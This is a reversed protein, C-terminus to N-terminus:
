IDSSVLHPDYTDDAAHCVFEIPRLNYVIPHSYVSGDYKASPLAHSERDRLYLIRTLLRPPIIHQCGVFFYNLLVSRAGSPEFLPLTKAKPKKVAETIPKAESNTQQGTLQPWRSM